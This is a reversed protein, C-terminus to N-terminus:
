TLDSIYCTNIFEIVPDFRISKIHITSIGRDLMRRVLAHLTSTSCIRWFHQIIKAAIVLIDKGAGTIDPDSEFKRRKTVTWRTPYEEACM